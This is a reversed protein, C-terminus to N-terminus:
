RIFQLTPTHLDASSPRILYAPLDTVSDNIFLLAAKLDSSLVTSMCPLYTVDGDSETAM